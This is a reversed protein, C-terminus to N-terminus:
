IVELLSHISMEVLLCATQMVHGVCPCQFIINMETTEKKAKSQKAKNTINIEEGGALHPNNSKTGSRDREQAQFRRRGRRRGTLRLHRIATPSRLTCSLMGSCIGSLTGSCAFYVALIIYPIGSLIGYRFSYFTM